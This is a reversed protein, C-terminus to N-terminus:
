FMFDYATQSKGGYHQGPKLFDEASKTTALITGGLAGSGSTIQPGRQVEISKLLEPEIFTGGMRYKEFGKPVGDVKVMVDENDAYGRISFSMGSPRPGGNISVGPVSKVAEFINSPQNRSLEESTITSNSQTEHFPPTVARRDNVKIEPLIDVEKELQTTPQSVTQPQSKEESEEHKAPEAEDAYAVHLMGYAIGICLLQRFLLPFPM